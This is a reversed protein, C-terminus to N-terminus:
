KLPLFGRILLGGGAGEFLLSLNCQGSSPIHNVMPALRHYFYHEYRQQGYHCSLGTPIERPASPLAEYAMRLNFGKIYTRTYDNPEKRGTSKFIWKCMHHEM